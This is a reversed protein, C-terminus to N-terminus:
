DLVQYFHLGNGGPDRVHFERTGWPTDGPLAWPSGRMSGLWTELTHEGGFGLAQAGFLFVVGVGGFLVFSVAVTRWARADMNTVFAILRRM